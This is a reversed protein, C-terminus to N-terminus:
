IARLWALPMGNKFAKLARTECYPRLRILRWSCDLYETLCEALAATFTFLIRVCHWDDDNADGLARWDKALFSSEQQLRGGLKRCMVAVCGNSSSRYVVFSVLRISLFADACSYFSRGFVFVFFRQITFEFLISCLRRKTLTHCCIADLQLISAVIGGGGVISKLVIQWMQKACQIIASPSKLCWADWRGTSM